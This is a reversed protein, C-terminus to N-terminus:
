VGKQFKSHNLFEFMNKFYVACARRSFKQVFNYSEIRLHHKLFSNNLNSIDKDLFDIKKVVISKRTISVFVKIWKNQRWKKGCKGGGHHTLLIFVYMSESYTENKKKTCTLNLSFIPLLFYQVLLLQRM